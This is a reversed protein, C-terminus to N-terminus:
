REALEGLRERAIGESWTIHVAESPLGGMSLTRVRRCQDHQSIEVDPEVEPMRYQSPMYACKM